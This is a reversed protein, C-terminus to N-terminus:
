SRDGGPQPRRRHDPGGLALVAGIPTEGVVAAQEALALARDMMEPWAPAM